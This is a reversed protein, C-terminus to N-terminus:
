RPQAGRGRRGSQAPGGFYREYAQQYGHYMAYRKCQLSDECIETRIEVPSKLIRRPYYSGPQVPRMYSNARRSGIFIDELSENSEYSDYSVCLTALLSLVALQLLANM